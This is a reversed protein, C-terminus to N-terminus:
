GSAACMAPPAASLSTKSSCSRAATSGSTALLRSTEVYPAPAGPQACVRESARESESALAAYVGVGVGVGVCGPAPPRMPLLPVPAAQHARPHAKGPAASSAPAAPPPLRRRERGRHRRVGWRGRRTGAGALQRPPGPLGSGEVRRGAVRCGLSQSGTWQTHMHVHRHTRTCTGTHAHARACLTKRRGSLQGEVCALDVELLGQSRQEVDRTRACTHAM